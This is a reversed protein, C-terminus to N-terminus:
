IEHALGWGDDGKRLDLHEVFKPRQRTGNPQQESAGKDVLEAREDHREERQIQRLSTIGVRVSAEGKSRVANPM